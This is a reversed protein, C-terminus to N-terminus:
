QEVGYNNDFEDRARVAESLATEMADAFLHLILAYRFATDDPHKESITKYVARALETQEPDAAKTIAAVERGNGLGLATAVGARYRSHEKIAKELEM